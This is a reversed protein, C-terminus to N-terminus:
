LEDRRTAILRRGAPVVDLLAQARVGSGGAGAEIHAIFRTPRLTVRSSFAPFDALVAKAASSPLMSVVQELTVFAGIAGRGLVLERSASLALGTVRSIVTDNASNLNVTPNAARGDTQSQSVVSVGATDVRLRLQESGLTGADILRATCWTGGGLDIRALVRTLSDSAYRARLIAECADRAWEARRSGVRNASTDLGSRAVMMVDSAALGLAAIVWLVTLLTFGKRTMWAGSSSCDDLRLRQRVRRSHDMANVSRAAADDFARVDHGV